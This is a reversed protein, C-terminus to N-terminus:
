GTLGQVTGCDLSRHRLRFLINNLGRDAVLINFLSGSTTFGLILNLDLGYRATHMM